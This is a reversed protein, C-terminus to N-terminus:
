SFKFVCHITDLVGKIHSGQSNYTKLPMKFDGMIRFIVTYIITVNFPIQILLFGNM